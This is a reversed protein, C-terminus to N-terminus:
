QTTSATAGYKSARRFALIRTGIENRFSRHLDPRYGLAFLAELFVFFPAMVIAQLLNDLLAPARKEFVGHGIFQVIWSFIFVGLSVSFASPSSIAYQEATVVFTYMVPVILLGAVQDLILYFITYGLMVLTAFNELPAPGPIWSLLAALPAPYTFLQAPILHTFMSIGTWLITPVFVMHIAVNVKNAHYEGYKVFETKLDFVGM